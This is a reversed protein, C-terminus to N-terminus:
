KSHLLSLSLTLADYRQGDLGRYYDARTGVKVFGHRVYLNLAPNGNRVELFICDADRAKAWACTASVLASGVGTRRALPAVAILLLEVEGVTSRCLAFGAVNQGDHFGDAFEAIILATNPLSLLGSCQAMSWAEGFGPDFATTM